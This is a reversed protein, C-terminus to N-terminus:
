HRKKRNASRLRRSVFIVGLLGFATFLLTLPNGLADDLIGTNPLANAGGTGFGRDRDVVVEGTPTADGGGIGTDGTDGAGAATPQAVTTPLVIDAPTPTSQFLAALATATQQVAGLEVPEGGEPMTANADPLATAETTATAVDPPGTLTLAFSETAAVVTETALADATAIRDMLEQTQVMAPDETPPATNSPTPTISPTLTFQTATQTLFMFEANQTETQAIQLEVAVNTMVVETALLQNATPGSNLVLFIILGFGGLLIVIMAAAVMMFTRSPGGGGAAGTDAFDDDGFDDDGLDDDGFDLDAGFEDDFDLGSDDDGGLDGFDDGGFDDDILNNSDFDLDDGFGDDDDLGDDDFDGFLDDRDFFDDNAM